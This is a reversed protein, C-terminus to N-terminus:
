FETPIWEISGRFEDESVTRIYDWDLPPVTYIEWATVDYFVKDIVVIAHLEGSSVRFVLMEPSYGEERAALFYAASKNSCDNRNRVYVSNAIKYFLDNAPIQKSRMFPCLIALFVGLGIFYMTIKSKSFM